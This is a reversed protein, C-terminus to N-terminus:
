FDSSAWDAVNEMNIVEEKGTLRNRVKGLWKDGFAYPEQILDGLSYSGAQDKYVIRVSSTTAGGDSWVSSSRNQDAPLKGKARRDERAASTAAISARPLPAPQSALSSVLTTLAAVSAFM